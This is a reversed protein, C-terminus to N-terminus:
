NLTVDTLETNSTGLSGPEGVLGLGKVYYFTAYKTDTDSFESIELVETYSCDDTSFSTNSSVVKRSYGNGYTALTQGSTPSAPIHLYEQNDNEYYRYINGNADERYLHEFDNFSGESFKIVSYTESDEDETGSIVIDLGAIGGTYEWSNGQELPFYSDGGNGDCLVSGSDSDNEDDDKKCSSFLASIALIM